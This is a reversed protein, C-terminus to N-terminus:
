KGDVEDSVKMILELYEIVESARLKKGVDDGKKWEKFSEDLSSRTKSYLAIIIANCDAKSLKM